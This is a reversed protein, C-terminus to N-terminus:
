SYSFITKKELALDAMFHNIASSIWISRDAIFSGAASAIMLIKSSSFRLSRARTQSSSSFTARSSFFEDVDDFGGDESMM